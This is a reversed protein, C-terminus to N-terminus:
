LVNRLLTVLLLSSVPLTYAVILLSSYLMPWVFLGPLHPLHHTGTSYARVVRASCQGGRGVQQVSNRVSSRVASLM